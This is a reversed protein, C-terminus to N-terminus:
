YHSQRISHILLNVWIDATAFVLTTSERMRQWRNKLLTIAKYFTDNSQSLESSYCYCTYDEREDRKWRTKLLTVAKYFTDNSQSLESSYCYCTNDEREDRKWRTKLLTVAKYFTDTSQSM